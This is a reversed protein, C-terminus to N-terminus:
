FSLEGLDGASRTHAAPMAASSKSATAYLMPIRGNLQNQQTSLETHYAM